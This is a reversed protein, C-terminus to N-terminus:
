KPADGIRMFEALDKLVWFILEYLSDLEAKAEQENRIPTRPGLFDLVDDDLKEVITTILSRVDQSFQWDNAQSIHSWVDDKGVWGKFRGMENPTDFLIKDDIPPAFLSNWNCPFREFRTNIIPM